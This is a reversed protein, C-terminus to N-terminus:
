DPLGFVEVPDPLDRLRHLGLSRVPRALASAVAATMLLPVNLEKTLRELRAARNVAPGIVTFDLRDPAGVNGYVVEGANLGVGFRIEPLGAERRRRNAAEVREFADLASDVAARCAADLAQQPGAPFVILM